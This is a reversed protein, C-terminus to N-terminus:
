FERLVVFRSAIRGVVKSYLTYLQRHHATQQQQRLTDNNHGDFHFRKGLKNQEPM